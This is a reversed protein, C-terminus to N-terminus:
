SIPALVFGVLRMGNPTRRGRVASGTTLDVQVIRSRDGDQLAFMATSNDNQIDFPVRGESSISFGLGSGVQTASQETINISVLADQEADIAFQRTATASDNTYAVGVVDITDGNAYTLDPSDTITIPNATQNIVQSSTGSVVRIRGNGDGGAVPNFDIEVDNDPLTVTGTSVRTAVGTTENLTYLAGSETLVFLDGTSPQRDISIAQEDVTTGAWTIAVGNGASDPDNTDFTVLRNDATVGIAL